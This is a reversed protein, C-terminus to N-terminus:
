KSLRLVGVSELTFQAKLRYAPGSSEVCLSISQMAALAQLAAGVGLSDLWRRLM